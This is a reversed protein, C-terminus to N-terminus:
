PVWVAIVPARSLDLTPQILRYPMYFLENESSSRRGHRQGQGTPEVQDLVHRTFLSHWREAERMDLEPLQHLLMLRYWERSRGVRRAVRLVSERAAPEADDIPAIDSDAYLEFWLRKGDLECVGTLPGDWFDDCWVMRTEDTVLPVSDLAFPRAVPDHANRSFM